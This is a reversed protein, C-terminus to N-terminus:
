MKLMLGRLLKTNRSVNEGVYTLPENTNPDVNGGAQSPGLKNM